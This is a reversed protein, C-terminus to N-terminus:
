KIKKTCNKNKKHIHTSILNNREDHWVLMITRKGSYKKITEEVGFESEEYSNELESSYEEHENLLFAKM